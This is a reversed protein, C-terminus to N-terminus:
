VHNYNRKGKYHDLYDQINLEKNVIRHERADSVTEWQELETPRRIKHPLDRARLERQLWDPLDQYGLDAYEILAERVEEDEMLPKIKKMATQVLKPPKQKILRQRKEDSMPEVWVCYTTYEASLPVVEDGKVPMLDLYRKIEDMRKGGIFSGVLCM